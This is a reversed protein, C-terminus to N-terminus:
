KGGEYLNLRTYTASTSDESDEKSEPGAYGAVSHPKALSEFYGDIYGDNKDDLDVSDGRVAKIADVKITREDKGNFDYSDGVYPRASEILKMKEEVRKDLADGNFEKKYDALRKEASDAKDQAGKAKGKLQDREETLKKIQENLEEIKKGNASVDADLKTIRDADQSAVTVNVGDLRVQTTEMNEGEEIVAEASDGLLRVNHGARGKQVVAVHNIQINKQVSDYKVGNLEGKEPVVETQFGISLERKGHETIEKILDADTIAIDNYLTNGEIHANSGTFGKMYKNSNDKTVLEGPHNDTVPKANASKVTFDSLLEEPKKAEMDISGDAKMYPQVMVQAIPVRRVYLFGTQKDVVPERIPVSDFRQTLM